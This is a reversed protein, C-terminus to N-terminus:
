YGDNGCAACRWGRGCPVHKDHACTGPAPLAKVEKEAVFLQWKWSPAPRSGDEDLCAIVGERPDYGSNWGPNAAEFEKYLKNTSPWGSREDKDMEELNRFLVKVIVQACGGEKTYYEHSVQMSVRPDVKGVAGCSKCLWEKGLQDCEDHPCDAPPLDLVHQGNIFFLAAGERVGVPATGRTWRKLKSPIVARWDRHETVFREFKADALPFARLMQMARSNPHTKDVVFEVPVCVVATVGNGNTFYQAVSYTEKAHVHLDLARIKKMLSPAAALAACFQKKAAPLDAEAESSPFSRKPSSM